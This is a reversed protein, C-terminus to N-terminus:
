SWNAAPKLRVQKRASVRRLRNQSCYQKLVALLDVNM